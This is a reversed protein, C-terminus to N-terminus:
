IGCWQELSDQPFNHGQGKGGRSTESNNEVRWTIADILPADDKLAEIDVNTLM